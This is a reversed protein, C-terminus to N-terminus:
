DDTQSLLLTEKETFKRLMAGICFFSMAIANKILMEILVMAM